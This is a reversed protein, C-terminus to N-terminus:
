RMKLINVLKKLAIEFPKNLDKKDSKTKFQELTCNLTIKALDYLVNTLLGFSITEVNM